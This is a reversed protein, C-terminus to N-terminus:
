FVAHFFPSIRKYPEIGLKKAQHKRIPLSGLSTKINRRRGRNTGTIKKIFFLAIKPSVHLLIKQRITNELHEFDQQLDSRSSNRYLIDAIEAICAELREKDEPNM